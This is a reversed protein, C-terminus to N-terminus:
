HYPKQSMGKYDSPIFTYQVDIKPDKAWGRERKPGEIFDPTVQYAVWDAFKTNRNASLILIDHDVIINDLAAGSPCKLLCNKHIIKGGEKAKKKITKASPAPYPAQPQPHPVWYTSCAIFAPIALFPFPLKKFLPKRHGWKRIRLM